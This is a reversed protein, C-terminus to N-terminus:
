VPTLLALAKAATNKRYDLEHRLHNALIVVAM